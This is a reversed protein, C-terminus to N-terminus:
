DSEKSALGTLFERVREDLILSAFKRDGVYTPTSEIFPTQAVGGEM